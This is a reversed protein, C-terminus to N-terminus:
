QEIHGHPTQGLKGRIQTKTVHSWCPTKELPLTPKKSGALVDDPSESPSIISQYYVFAMEAKVEGRPQSAFRNSNACILLDNVPLRSRDIIDGVIILHAM